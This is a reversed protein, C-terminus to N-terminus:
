GRRLVEARHFAADASRSRAACGQYHGPEHCAYEVTGTDGVRWTLEKTERPELTISNAGNHAMGDGTRTFEHVAQGTNTM